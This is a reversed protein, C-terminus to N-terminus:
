PQIAVPIDTHQLIEEAHSVTVDSKRGSGV